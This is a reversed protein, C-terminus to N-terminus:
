RGLFLEQIYAFSIGLCRHRYIAKKSVFVFVFAIINYNNSYSIRLFSQSKQATRTYYDTYMYNFKIHINNKNQREKKLCEILNLFFLVNLLFSNLNVFTYLYVIFNTYYYKVAIPVNYNVIWILCSIQYFITFIYEIIISYKDYMIITIIINPIARTLDLYQSGKHHFSLPKM